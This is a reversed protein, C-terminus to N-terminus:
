DLHYNILLLLILAVEGSVIYHFLSLSFYGARLKAQLTKERPMGTEVSSISQNLKKNKIKIRARLM